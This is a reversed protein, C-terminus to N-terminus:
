LDKLEQEYKKVLQNVRNIIQIRSNNNIRTKVERTSYPLEINLIVIPIEFLSRLKKLAEIETQISNAKILQEQTM